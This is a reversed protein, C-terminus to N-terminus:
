MTGGLLLVYQPLFLLLLLLSKLLLTGLAFLQRPLPYQPHLRKAAAATLAGSILAHRRYRIFRVLM